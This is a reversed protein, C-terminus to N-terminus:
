LHLCNHHWLALYVAVWQTQRQNPRYSTIMGRERLLSLWVYAKFVSVETETKKQENYNSEDNFQSELYKTGLEPIVTTIAPTIKHKTM